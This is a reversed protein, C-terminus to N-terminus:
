RRNITVKKDCKRCIYFVMSLARRAVEMYVKNGKKACDPCVKAM